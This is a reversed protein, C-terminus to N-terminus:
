YSPTDTHYDEVIANRRRRQTDIQRGVRTENVVAYRSYGPQGPKATPGTVVPRVNLAGLGTAVIALGECLDKAREALLTANTASVLGDTDLVDTGPVPGYIRGRGRPGLKDTGWGVVISNELPLPSSGIGVPYSSTYDLHAFNGDIANGTLDCPYLSIRRMQVRSSWYFGGIFAALAPEAQDTLYSEPDFDIAAPGNVTYTKETTFTAETHSEFTPEVTWNDPFTGISDPSGFILLLRMTFSWVEPVLPGTGTYGGSVQLRLHKENAM